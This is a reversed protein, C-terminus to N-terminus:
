GYTWMEIIVVEGRLNVLRLPADTNIWTMNTLEPAPGLDPLDPPPLHPDDSKQWSGALRCSTLTFLMLIILSKLKMVTVERLQAESYLVIM